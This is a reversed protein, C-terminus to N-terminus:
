KVAMDTLSHPTAGYQPSRNKKNYFDRKGIANFIVDAGGAPGQNRSPSFANRM